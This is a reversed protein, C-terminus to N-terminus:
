PQGEGESYGKTMECKSTVLGSRMCRIVHRHVPDEIKTIRKAENYHGNTKRMLDRYGESSSRGRGTSTAGMKMTDLQAVQKYLLTEKVAQTRRKMAGKSTQIFTMGVTRETDAVRARLFRTQAPGIMPPAEALAKILPQKSRGLRGLLRWEDVAVLTTAWPTHEEYLALNAKAKAPM